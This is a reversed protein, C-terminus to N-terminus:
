IDHIAILGMKVLDDVIREYRVKIQGANNRINKNYERPMWRSLQRRGLNHLIYSRMMGPTVNGNIRAYIGMYFRNIYRWRGDICVNVGWGAVSYRLQLHDYPVKRYYRTM